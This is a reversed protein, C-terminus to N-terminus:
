RHLPMGFDQVFVNLSVMNNGPTPDDDEEAVMVKLTHEGPTEPTWRCYFDNEGPNLGFARKVSFVNGNDYFFVEMHPKVADDVAIRVKLRYTTHTFLYDDGYTESEATAQVELSEPTISVERTGGAGDEQPLVESADSKPSFIKFSNDWPWYGQNNSACSINCEASATDKGTPCPGPDSQVDKGSQDRYYQDAAYLEHIEDKVDNNPDVTVYIVYSKATNPQDGGLGSTDWKVYIDRHELPDLGDVWKDGIWHTSPDTDFGPDGDKLDPDFEAYNFRVHFGGSPTDLSYNYVTTLVYVIDGATPSTAVFLKDTDKTKPENHLLFLRRMRSRDQRYKSFSWTGYYTPDTDSKTWFFKKPLNLSLDPYGHYHRQWWVGQTSGTPDVAQAMKLTGDKTSYVAPKFQYAQDANADGPMNISVGESSSMTEKSVDRDSWTKGIHFSADLNLYWKQKEVIEYATAQFGLQFDANYSWTHSHSKETVTWDTSAWEIGIEGKGTSWEQTSLVSMVSDLDHHHGDEDKVTYSGKDEPFAEDSIQPYSLINGNEHSPQYYDSMDCGWGNVKSKVPGPMMVDYFTNLGNKDKLGIIPFRWIDILKFHVQVYDDRDTHYECQSQSSLYAGNLKKTVSNYDFSTKVSEKTTIEAKEEEVGDRLTQKSSAQLSAGWGFNTSDQHTNTFTTGQKDTFTSYFNRQRSIRFIQWKGGEDPLYDLHKPPEQIIHDARLMSPIVLHIPAGLYYGKGDRDSAVIPISMFQQDSTRPQGPHFDGQYKLSLKLSEDLDFVAFKPQQNDAWSVALQQRVKDADLGKFNGSTIKPICTNDPGYVIKEHGPDIFVNALKPNFDDDVEFTMVNIYYQEDNWPICAMAIQRRATSFGGTPNFKFLGSTITAGRVSGYLEGPGMPLDWQGSKKMKLNKDTTLIWLQPSLSLLDYPDGMQFSSICVAIEDIGDGNFDGSTLDVVNYQWNGTVDFGDTYANKFTLGSNDYDFTDIEYKQNGGHSDATRFGVAIECVGDDDYDGLAVSFHPRTYENHETSYDLNYIEDNWSMRKLDKDLVVVILDDGVGDSKTDEYRRFVVVIEDNYEGDDNLKRDVDGVAIDISYYDNHSTDDPFDINSFAGTAKTNVDPNDVL